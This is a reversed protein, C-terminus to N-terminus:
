RQIFCKATVLIGEVVLRNLLWRTPSFKQLIESEAVCPVVLNEHYPTLTSITSPPLLIFPPGPKIINKAATSRIYDLSKSPKAKLNLINRYIFNDTTFLYSGPPHRHLDLVHTRAINQQFVFSIVMNKSNWSWVLLM